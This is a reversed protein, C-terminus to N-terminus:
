PRTIPEASMMWTPSMTRLGYPGCGAPTATSMSPEYGAAVRQTTAPAGHAFSPGRRKRKGSESSIGCAPAM